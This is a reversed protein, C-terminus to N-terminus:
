QPLKSASHCWYVERIIWRGASIRCSERSDGLSRGVRVALKVANLGPTRHGVIIGPRWWKGAVGAVVMRIPRRHVLGGVSAHM